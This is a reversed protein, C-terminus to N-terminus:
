NALIPQKVAMKKLIVKNEPDVAITPKAQAPFSFTQIQKEVLISEVKEIEGIKLSIQLPLRFIKPTGGASLQTQTVTIRVLKKLPSFSSKVKLVPYGAAYVWQKFFWDLNQGSTEEMAKKLDGTEVNDFKHRSLYLNVAKWFNETGVTERLMHLVLGGKQYTIVDFLGDDNPDASTNFLAHKKKNFLDDVFFRDLESQIKQEYSEKGLHKERYAAEMYTAFGENLWLESWNKCTVLDGFWSHALEHSVLDEVEPSLAALKSAKIEADALTTSTINEMGGFKFEAVITQDYKNYPFDVQTLNQFIEIMTPTNKYATKALIEEGPYVWYTLPLNGFKDEIKVYKGVVFSILYNSHLVNTKFHFTKTQNPNETVEVLEGNAIAVQDNDTTIFQESTAKDDPFDYSPFWHRNENAEGQSWIQKDRVIKGDQRLEDVFYIGKSPKILNYKIRVSITETKSYPKDLTIKLHGNTLRLKLKEGTPELTVTEISMDEADLEIESLGDSVPKLQITTDGFVQRKAHDFSTKILYHQIDFTRVPQPAAFVIAAAFLLVLASVFYRRLTTVIM